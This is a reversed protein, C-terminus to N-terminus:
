IRNKGIARDIDEMTLPIQDGVIEMTNSRHKNTKM